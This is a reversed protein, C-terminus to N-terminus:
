SYPQPPAPALPAYVAPPPVGVVKTASPVMSPPPCASLNTNPPNSAHMPLSPYAMGGEVPPFMPQQPYTNSYGTYNYGGGPHGGGYIPPPHYGAQPQPQARYSVTPENNTTMKTTRGITSPAVPRKKKCCCYCVIIIIIIFVLVVFAGGLFVELPIIDLLNCGHEDSYDGCNNLEDCSLSGHICRHNDCHFDQYTETIHRQLIDRYYTETIHRMIYHICLESDKITAM